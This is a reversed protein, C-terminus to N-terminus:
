SKSGIGNNNFAHRIKQLGLYKNLPGGDNRYEGDIELCRDNSFFELKQNLQWRERGRFIDFNDSDGYVYYIESTNDNKKFFKKAYSM